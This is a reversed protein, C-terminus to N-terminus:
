RQTRRPTVEHKNVSRVFISDSPHSNTAFSHLPSCLLTLTRLSFGHHTFVCLWVCVCGCVCVGVCGCVWVDCVYEKEGLEFTYSSAIALKTGDRNFDLAAISTPYAPYLCIRKKNIHDWVNVKNDCGGTAFTGHVPHFAVANVPYLKQVGAVTTRHCKFAYKKAQVKRDPDFFEIAVRGEVSSLAYGKGDPFSKICRTQHALSSLRRQEPQHMKRIDYVYVHRGSTGVIIRQDSVDMAYVKGPQVYSGVNVNNGRPDWLNVIKDWGGSVLVNGCSSYAVCSAGAQHSGLTRDSGAKLSTRTIHHHPFSV